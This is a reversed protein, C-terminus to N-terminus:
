NSIKEILCGLAYIAAGVLLGTMEYMEKKFKKHYLIQKGYLLTYNVRFLISDSNEGLSEDKIEKEEQITQSFTSDISYM